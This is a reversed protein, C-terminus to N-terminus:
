SGATDTEIARKRVREIGAEEAKLYDTLLTNLEETRQIFTGKSKPKFIRYCNM